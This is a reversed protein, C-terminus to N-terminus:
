VSSLIVTLAFVGVGLTYLWVAPAPTGVRRRREYEWEAIRPDLRAWARQRRELLYFAGGTAAGYTLHGFLSPLAAAMASVSWALPAGLLMPFLTLAGIFWWALGYVLGWGVASGLDPSEHRFLQGYTIGVIGSVGMHVVFGTTAGSRGVLEAVRPLEGTSWMVIGFLLGGALSALAGWEASRLFRVGPGKVIRNLPDSEHFLVLWGRDLVSYVLGLLLGYMIHGVFSGLHGSAADTTWVVTSGLLYPFLTIGGLLWWFMGYAMGWVMSSGHGLADRQFLLGFTVGIFVAISFHVLRGIDPSTAGVLTAVLPFMGARAMWINFAWGGVIGALGGVVLARPVDISGRDSVVVRSQWIGVSLGVPASLGLLIGILHPFAVDIAVADAEWVSTPALQMIGLSLGWALVGIGLTWVFGRGPDIARSGAIATAVIGFGAGVPLWGISGQGIALLGLVGAIGSVAGVLYTSLPVHISDTRESREDSM